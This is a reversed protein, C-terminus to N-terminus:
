VAADLRQARMSAVDLLEVGMTLMWSVEEYAARMDRKVNVGCMFFDCLLMRM